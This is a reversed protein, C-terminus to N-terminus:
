HGTPRHFISPLIVLLCSSPHYLLRIYLVLLALITDLFANRGWPHDIATVVLVPVEHYRMIQGDLVPWFTRDKPCVTSSSPYASVPPGTHVSNGYSGVTWFRLAYLIRLGEAMALVLSVM